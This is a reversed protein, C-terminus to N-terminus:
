SDEESKDARIRELEKQKTNQQATEYADEEVKYGYRIDTLHGDASYKFSDDHLNKIIKYGASTKIERNWIPYMITGIDYDWMFDNGTRLHIEIIKDGIMEINIFDVDKLDNLFDPLRFDSPNEIKEWSDFMVLNKEPKRHLGRVTCFPRFNRNLQVHSVRKFDISLHEGEFYECWFHGPPVHKHHTMDEAHLRPDLSKVKAGVGMGYLNYIPRIIYKNPKTIPVCAPGADYGLRLSVDLKNFIWRYQPYQIWAQYDEDIPITQNKSM